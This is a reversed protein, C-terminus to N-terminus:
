DGFLGRVREDVDFDAVFAGGTTVRPHVREEAGCVTKVAGRFLLEQDDLADVAAENTEIRLRRRVFEAIVIGVGVPEGGGFGSGRPKFFLIAAHDQAVM